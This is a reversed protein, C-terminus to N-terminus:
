RCYRRLYAQRLSRCGVYLQHIRDLIVVDDRGTMLMLFSFVKNGIGPNNIMGQFQRRVDVTSISRNGVLDHLEELRSRGGHTLCRSCLSRGIMLM